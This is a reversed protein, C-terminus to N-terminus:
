AENIGFMVLKLFNNRYEGNPEEIGGLNIANLLNDFFDIGHWTSLILGHGHKRHFEMRLRVYEEAWKHGTSTTLTQIAQECFKKM